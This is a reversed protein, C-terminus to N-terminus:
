PKPLWHRLLPTTMLTSLIAMLVLMTFVAPPIVGLERGLNIVILEMLGRTNMLVGICRSEIPPLGALRAALYCGALKGVTALVILGGCWLWLEGTMLSGIDTRLGTHTFFIPLLLVMLLDEVRQRWAAVLRHQDHLLVGAMFGGFIAFIGLQSTLMASAFVMMLLVALLNQSLQGSTAPFRRIINLLLPRVLWWSVALYALLLMIQQGLAPWSLQRATVAAVGTLLIWGVADNAAASAIAIVGIRSRALGAEMLIRGLIPVATISLAIAIFLSYAVPAIDPALRSASFWGFGLGLMFPLIIGVLTVLCVARYNRRNGLQSFDFEMGVQFMLLILGIQSMITLPASDVSRFLWESLDPCWYGFVSPGLVLGAIMEGVARPQRICVALYGVCRTVLIIILLQLLTFFLLHETAQIASPLAHAM